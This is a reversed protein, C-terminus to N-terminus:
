LGTCIDNRGPDEQVTLQKWIKEPPLETGDKLIISKFPKDECM